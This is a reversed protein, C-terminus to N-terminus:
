WLLGVFKSVWSICGCCGTTRADGCFVGEFFYALGNLIVNQRNTRAPYTNYPFRSWSLHDGIKKNGKSVTVSKIPPFRRLYRSRQKWLRSRQQDPHTESNSTMELNNGRQNELLAMTQFINQFIYIWKLDIDFWTKESIKWRMMKINTTWTM